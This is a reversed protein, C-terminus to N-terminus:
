LLHLTLERRRRFGSSLHPFWQAVGTPPTMLSAPTEGGETPVRSDSPNFGQRSYTALMRSLERRWNAPITVIAPLLGRTGKTILLQTQCRSPCGVGATANPPLLTNHERDPWVVCPLERKFFSAFIFACDFGTTLRTGGKVFSVSIRFIRATSSLQFVRSGSLTARPYVVSQKQRLRESNKCPRASIM